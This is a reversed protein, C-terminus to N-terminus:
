KNDPFLKELFRMIGASDKARGAQEADAALELLKEQVVEPDVKLKTMAMNWAVAAAQYSNLSELYRAMKKLDGAALSLAPRAKGCDVFIKAALKRRGPQLNVRIGITAAEDLGAQSTARCMLLAIEALIFPDEPRANLRNQALLLANDLQFDPIAAIKKLLNQAANQDAPIDAPLPSSPTEAPQDPQASSTPDAAGPKAPEDAGVAEPVQNETDGAVFAGALRGVLIPTMAFPLLLLFVGITAGAGPAMAGIAAVLLMLPLAYVAWFVLVGGLMAAFYAITDQSKDVLLKRWPSFSLLDRPDDTATAIIVSLAPALILLLVGFLLFVASFGIHTIDPGGSASRLAFFLLLGAPIGWLVTLIGYRFAFKLSEGNRISRSFWGADLDGRSAPIAFRSLAIGSILISLFADLVLWQKFIAQILAVPLLFFLIVPIATGVSSPHLFNVVVQGALGRFKSNNNM